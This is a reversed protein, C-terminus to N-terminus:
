GQGVLGVVLGFAASIIAIIWFRMTVKSEPWGLAEFHHHLPASKFLKKHWLKRWIIQIIVSGSEIVLPFAIIILVLASNTLMAIIGLTTGLSMAGTDGMFYRAPFVNFWLFALLAGVIAGCFMALEVQGQSFAIASFAAFCALLIGGALGDLGDAENTSFSTAVIVLIFLPIYWLGISFDGVGPVHIVDWGLKVFFWWAGFAAIATYVVLKCKMRLGGGKPGIKFVNMVDDILGVFATAVLAGLPLLTEARTLFNLKELVGIGTVKAMVFFLIALILVTGWIIIGGMTPTGEKKMHLETYVPVGKKRIRKGLNYKYLFHTLVPSLSIALTFSIGILILVRAINSVLLPDQIENM